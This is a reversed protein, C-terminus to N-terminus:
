RRVEWLYLYKVLFCIDLSALITRSGYPESILLKRSLSPSFSFTPSHRNIQFIVKANESSVFLWKVKIGCSLPLFYHISFLFHSISYQLIYFILLYIFLKVGLWLNIITKGLFGNQLTKGALLWDFDIFINKINGHWTKM